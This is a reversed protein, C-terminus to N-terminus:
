SLTKLMTFFPDPLHISIALTPSTIGVPGDRRTLEPQLTTYGDWTM